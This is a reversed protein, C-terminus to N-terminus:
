RSGSGPTPGSEDRDDVARCYAAAARQATEGHGHADVGAQTARRQGYENRQLVVTTYGETRWTATEPPDRQLDM